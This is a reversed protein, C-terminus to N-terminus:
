CEDENQGICNVCIGLSIIIVQAHTGDLNVRSLVGTHTDVWYMRGERYHFDVLVGNGVGSVLWKQGGGDLDTLVITNRLGVLLYPEPDKCWVM